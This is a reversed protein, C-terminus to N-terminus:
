GRAITANVACEAGGFTSKDYCIRSRQIRAITEGDALLAETGMVKDTIRQFDSELGDFYEGWNGAYCSILAIHLAWPNTEIHSVAAAARRSDKPEFLRNIVTLYETERNSNAILVARGTHYFGVKRTSWGGKLSKEVFNLKYSLSSTTKARTAKVM